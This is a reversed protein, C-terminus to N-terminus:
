GPRPPPGAPGSDQGARAHGHPSGHGADGSRAQRSNGPAGGPAGGPGAAAAAAVDAPYTRLGRVLLAASAALPLLMLVFAWQLGARGGGFLNDATFGFLLPAMAQAFSRLLTRISEARGWLAAPMIDLRAADLPPNQASLCFATLMLFPVAVGLSRSLVAPVTVVVTLSAAVASVLVRGTLHRRRLLLDGARGGILTGAIAGVGLALLGVTALGQGIGYQQKIFETGFTQVGALFFYGCASAIILIVNTPVQLVYRAAQWLNMGAPDTGPLRRSDAAMGRDSALRQADSLGGPEPGSAAPGAAPGAPRGDGNEPFLMSRGGRAPEPLRATVWALPLAPIALVVFAARWSLSALNGALGFGVGAGVLEGALIYGWIRGREWGPFYDGVLSAILPGAAATVVGLALRALLMTGFSTTAATWAMAAAWFAVSIGLTRTRRVRDALVGFPLTAVAGVLSTVTVLLGLDTNSIGLASRLQTASAGVTAIDATSLGLVCAFVLIVRMRAAGGLVAALRDRGAGSAARSAAALRGLLRNSAM